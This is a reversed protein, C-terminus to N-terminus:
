LSLQYVFPSTTFEQLHAGKGADIGGMRQDAAQRPHGRQRHENVALRAVAAVDQVLHADTRERFVGRHLIEDVTHLGRAESSGEANSNLRPSRAGSREHFREM